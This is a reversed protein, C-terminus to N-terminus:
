PSYFAAVRIGYVFTDLDDNFGSNEVYQLDPSIAIYDNVTFRLFTEAHLTDDSGPGLEDSAGTRGLAMGLTAFGLPQETALSIFNEGPSVDADAWGLRVNWAGSGLPGDLVSYIGYNADDDPTGDVQDHDRTNTWV